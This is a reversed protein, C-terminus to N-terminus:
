FQGTYRINRLRRFTPHAVALQGAGMGLPAPRHNRKAEKLKARYESNLATLINSLAGSVSAPTVSIGDDTVVWERGVEAPIISPLAKLYAGEVIIDSFITYITPDAFTYATFTPTANFESLALWIFSEMDEISLIDCRTGDPKRQTNRLRFRLKQMLVNIGFIEEQTFNIKPVDGIKMEPKTVTDGAATISGQSVVNFDFQAINAFGDLTASWIDKWVGDTYGDPVTFQLRYHGEGIRRVGFNSPLRVTAGLSNLIEVEPFQDTDRAIGASDRFQVELRINGGPPIAARKYFIQTV